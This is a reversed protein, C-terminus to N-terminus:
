STTQGHLARMFFDEDVLGIAWGLAVAAMPNIPKIEDIKAQIAVRKPIAHVTSKKRGPKKPAKRAEEALRKQAEAGRGAVKLAESASIKRSKVASLLEPELSLLGLNDKITQVGVGFMVAVEEETRGMDIMRQAKQARVILADQQRCENLSVMVAAMDRSEGGKLVVPIKVTMGGKEGIRRNAERAARVRQRGDVVEVLGASNKRVIVPNLVGYAMINLVLGEDLPLDVREDYLAHGRDETDIGVIIVKEPAVKFANFRTGELKALGENPAQKRPNGGNSKSNQIQTSM